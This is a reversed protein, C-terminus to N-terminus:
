EVGIADALALTGGDLAQQPVAPLFTNQLFADLKAALTGQEEVKLDAVRVLAEVFETYTMQVSEGTLQESSHLHANWEEANAQVFIAVAAPRGFGTESGM